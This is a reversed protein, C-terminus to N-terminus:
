NVCLYSGNKGFSSAFLTECGDLFHQLGCFVSESKRM